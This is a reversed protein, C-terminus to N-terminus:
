YVVKRGGNLEDWSANRQLLQGLEVLVRQVGAEGLSLLAVHGHGGGVGGVLGPFVQGFIDVDQPKEEVQTDLRVGHRHVLGVYVEVGELMCGGQVGLEM